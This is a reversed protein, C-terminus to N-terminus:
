LITLTNQVLNNNRYNLSFFIKVELFAREFKGQRTNAGTHSAVHGGIEQM